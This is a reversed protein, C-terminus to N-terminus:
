MQKYQKNSFRPGNRGYLQQLQRYQEDTFALRGFGSFENSESRDNGNMVNHAAFNKKREFGSNSPKKDFKQHYPKKEVNLPYQKKKFENNSLKNSDDTHGPSGILWYYNYQIHGGKGCYDCKIFPKKGKYSHTKSFQMSMYEGKGTLALFSCSRKSEDESLMTYAQNLSPEVTKLLLQRRIQDHSENLGSLFQLLQKGQLHEIYEKSKACDCGLTPVLADFEAWLVRLKTFYM